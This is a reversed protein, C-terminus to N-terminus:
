FFKVIIEDAISFGKRTLKFRGNNMEAMKNDVLVRVAEEKTQLFDRGSIDQYKQLNIGKSRLSTMVYEFLLEDNDPNSENERPLMDKSLADAYGGISRVNNWRKGKYFSHSSPGLGIYNRLEWYKSNHRAEYGPKTFSSVEYHDYGNETMTDSVFGYLESETEESNPIVLGAESQSYLVTKKEFTLAYASIHPAGLEAAKRISYNIDEVSSGPLSYIIDISFNDFYKKISEIVEIGEDATHERTLFELERDIFSQLGLSIRNIGADRYQPINDANLDEPNAEITIEPDGDINFKEKVEKIIESIQTPSLISPTGGGFYITDFKEEAYLSSSLRIESSLGELFKERLDPNTVLFFDCYICRKHCFPIHIYIGSM